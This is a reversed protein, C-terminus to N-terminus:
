HLLHLRRLTHCLSEGKPLAKLEAEGVAQLRLATLVYLAASLALVPLMLLPSSWRSRLLLYVAAGAGISCLAAALPRLLDRGTFFRFPLARSLAVAEVTLVTLNCCLAFGM